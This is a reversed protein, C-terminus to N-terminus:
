TAQRDMYITIPELVHIGSNKWFHCSFLGDKCADSVGVYEAETSSADVIPQKHTHRTFIDANLYVVNGLYSKRYTSGM